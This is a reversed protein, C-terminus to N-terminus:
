NLINIKKSLYTINLTINNIKIIVEFDKFKKFMIKLLYAKKRLLEHTYQTKQLIILNMLEHGEEM